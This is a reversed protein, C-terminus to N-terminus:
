YNNNKSKLKIYKALINEKFSFITSVLASLQLKTEIFVQNQKSNKELQGKRNELLMKYINKSIFIDNLSDTQDTIEKHFNLFYDKEKLPINKNTIDEISSLLVKNQYIRKALIRTYEQLKAELTEIEEKSFVGIYKLGTTSITTNIEQVTNQLFEKVDIGSPTAENKQALRGSSLIAAETSSTVFVTFLAFISLIVHYKKLIKFTLM